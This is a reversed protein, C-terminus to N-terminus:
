RNWSFQEVETSTKSEEAELREKRAKAKLYLAEQQSRPQRPANQPKEQAANPDAPNFQAGIAHEAQAVREFFTDPDWTDMTEFPVHFTAAVVARASDLYSNALWARKEQLKGAVSNFDGSFPNGRLQHLGVYAAIGATVEDPHPGVKVVARYVWLYLDMPGSETLDIHGYQALARKYEAWTLSRWLVLTGQPDRTSPWIARYVTAM